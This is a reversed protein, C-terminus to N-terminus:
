PRRVAAVVRCGALSLMPLRVQNCQWGPDINLVFTLHELRAAVESAAPGDPDLSTLLQVGEVREHETVRKPVCPVAGAGRLARPAVCM